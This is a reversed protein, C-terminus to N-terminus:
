RTRTQDFRSRRRIALVNRESACAFAQRASASVASELPASLAGFGILTRLAHSSQYSAAVAPVM